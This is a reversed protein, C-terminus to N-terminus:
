RGEAKAIAAEIAKFTEDVESTRVVAGVFQDLALKCAAILDPAAAILKGDPHTWPDVARMIGGRRGRPQDDDMEAFRPAAGQMGSRVFDMVVLRGRDPTQLRRRGYGDEFWEWPGPTHGSM